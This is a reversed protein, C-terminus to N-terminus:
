VKIIDFNSNLHLLQTGRWAPAWKLVQVDFYYGIGSVCLSDFAGVIWVILTPSGCIELCDIIWSGELTALEDVAWAVARALRCAVQMAPAEVICTLAWRRLVLWEQYFILSLCAVLLLVWGNDLNIAREYCCLICHSKRSRDVFVVRVIKLSSCGRISHNVVEESLCPCARNRTPLVYYLWQM